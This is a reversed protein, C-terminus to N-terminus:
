MYYLACIRFSCSSLKIKKEFEHVQAIMGRLELTETVMTLKRLGKSETGIWCLCGSSLRGAGPTLKALEPVEASGGGGM